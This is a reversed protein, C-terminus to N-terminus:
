NEMKEIRHLHDRLVPDDALEKQIRQAVSRITSPDRNGFHKAIEKFNLGTKERILYVAIGRALAVTKSRSRGRLDSQKLSFRKATRKVIEDVSPRNKKQRGKLIRSISSADLQTGSTEAEFYTQAFWGYLAPISLPLERAIWELVASGLSVRFGSALTALFRKRVAEGPLFIPVTTGGRIRAALAAPFDAENEPFDHSALLVTQGEVLLVDMTHQLEEAAWPKDRLQDLDDLVLLSLERFRRRFDSTTRTQLAESYNRAFDGATLFLTRKGAKKGSANKKWTEFIGQLLHSKGCGAPGYFLVPLQERIMEGGVIMRVVPELIYNEPGLLFGHESAPFLARSAEPSEYLLPKGAFPIIRIENGGM